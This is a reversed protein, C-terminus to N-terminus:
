RKNRERGAKLCKYPLYIERPVSDPRWPFSLIDRSNALIPLSLNSCCVVPRESEAVMTDIGVMEAWTTPFWNVKWRGREVLNFIKLHGPSGDIGVRRKVSGGNENVVVSALGDCGNKKTEEMTLDKQGDGRKGHNHQEM